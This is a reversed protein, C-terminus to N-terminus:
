YILLSYVGAPTSSVNLDLTMLYNTNHFSVTAQSLSINAQLKSHLKFCVCPGLLEKLCLSVPLKASFTLTLKM